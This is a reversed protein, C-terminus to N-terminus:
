RSEDEKGGIHVNKWDSVANKWLLLRAVGPANDTIGCEVKKTIM